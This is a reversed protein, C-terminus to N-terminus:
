VTGPIKFGDKNSESKTWPFYKVKEQTIGSLQQQEHRQKQVNRIEIRSSTYIQIVNRRKRNSSVDVLASNQSYGQM